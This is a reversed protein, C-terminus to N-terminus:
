ISNSCIPPWVVVVVLYKWKFDTNTISFMYKILLKLVNVYYNSDVNIEIECCNRFVNNIKISTKLCIIIMISRQQWAKYNFICKLNLWSDLHLTFLYWLLLLALPYLTCSDNERENLQKCGQLGSYVSGSHQAFVAPSWSSAAWHPIFVVCVESLMLVMEMMELWGWFSRVPWTEAWGVSMISPQPHDHSTNILRVKSARLFNKKAKLYIFLCALLFVKILFCTCQVVTSLDCLSSIKSNNTNNYKCYTSYVTCVISITYIRLTYHIFNTLINPICHM